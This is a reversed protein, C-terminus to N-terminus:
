LRRLPHDDSLITLVMLVAFVAITLTAILKFARRRLKADKVLLYVLSGGVMIGCDLLWWERFHVQYSQTVAVMDYWVRGLFDDPPLGLKRSQSVTHRMYAHMGGLGFIMFAQFVMMYLPEFRSPPREKRAKRKSVGSELAQVAAEIKRFAEERDRAEVPAVSQGSGSVVDSSSSGGAPHSGGTTGPTSEQDKDSSDV